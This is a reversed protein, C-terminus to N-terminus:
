SFIMFILMNPFEQWSGPSRVVSASIISSQASADAQAILRVQRVAAIIRATIESRLYENRVYRQTNEM